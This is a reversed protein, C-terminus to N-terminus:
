IVSLLTFFFPRDAEFGGNLIRWEAMGGGGNLFVGSIAISKVTCFRCKVGGVLPHLQSLARYLARNISPAYVITRVRNVSAGVMISISLSVETIVQCDTCNVPGNRSQSSKFFSTSLSLFVSILNNMAKISKSRRPRLSCQSVHTLVHPFCIEVTDNFGTGPNTTKLESELFFDCTKVLCGFTRVHYNNILNLIM